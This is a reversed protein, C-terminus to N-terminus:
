GTLFPLPATRAGGARVHLRAVMRAAARTVARSGAKAELWRWDGNLNAELLVPEGASLLFDFAAYKIGLAAAVTRAAAAVQEPPQCPLVRVLGEDLWPAAPSPKRVEFTHIEAEGLYYVRLEAEHEVYEQLVLPAQEEWRAAQRREVVQAFASALRGPSEEVFHCDLAKVVIRQSSLLRADHGPRTTIITEPVRIGAARAVTLQRLLGPGVGLVPASTVLDLQGLLARWADNRYRRVASAAHEAAARPSFHRAWVVTPAIGGIRLGDPTVQWSAGIDARWSPIGLRHLAAQLVDAEPDCERTLFVPCPTAHPVAHTPGRCPLRIVRAPDAFQWELPQSM